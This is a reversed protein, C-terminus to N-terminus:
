EEGALLAQLATKLPLVKNQILDWLIDEHVYLVWERSM